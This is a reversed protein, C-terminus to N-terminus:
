FMKMVLGAVVSGVTAVFMVTMLVTNVKDARSLKGFNKYSDMITAFSAKLSELMNVEGIIM